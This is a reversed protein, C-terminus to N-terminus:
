LDEELVPELRGKLSLRIYTLDPIMHAERSECSGQARHVRIDICGNLGLCAIM